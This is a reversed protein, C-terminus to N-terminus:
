SKVAQEQGANLGLGGGEVSLERETEARQCRISPFFDWGRPAAGPNRRSTFHFQGRRKKRILFQSDVQPRQFRFRVGDAALLFISAFIVRTSETKRNSKKKAARICSILRLGIVLRLTGFVITLGVAIAVYILGRVLGNLLAQILLEM